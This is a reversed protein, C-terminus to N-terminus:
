REFPLPGQGVAAVAALLSSSGTGTLMQPLLSQYEWPKPLFIQRAGRQRSTASDMILVPKQAQTQTADPAVDGEGHYAKLDDALKVVIFSSLHLPSNGGWDHRVVLTGHLIGKGTSRGEDFAAGGRAFYEIINAMEYPTCWWEGFIRTPDHFLRVLQTDKPLSVAQPSRIGGSRVGQATFGRARLFTERDDPPDFYSQNAAM